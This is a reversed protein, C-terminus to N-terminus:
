FLMEGVCAICDESGIPNYALANPYDLCCGEGNAAEGLVDGPGGICNVSARCVM